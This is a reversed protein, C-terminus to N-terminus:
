GDNKKKWISFFLNVYCFFNACHFQALHIWDITQILPQSHSSTNKESILETIHGFNKYAIKWVNNRNLCLLFFIPIWGFYWKSISFLTFRAFDPFPYSKIQVIPIIYVCPAMFKWDIKHPRKMKKVSFSHYFSLKMKMNCSISEFM